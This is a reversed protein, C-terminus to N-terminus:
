THLLSKKKLNPLRDMFAISGFHGLWVSTVKSAIKVSSYLTVKEGGEESVRGPESM